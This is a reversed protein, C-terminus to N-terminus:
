SPVMIARTSINPDTTNTCGHGLKQGNERRRILFQQLERLKQGVRKENPEVISTYGTRNQLGDPIDTGRKICWLIKGLVRIYAQIRTGHKGKTCHVHRSHITTVARTIATHLTILAEDITDAPKHHVHGDLHERVLQNYQEVDEGGM